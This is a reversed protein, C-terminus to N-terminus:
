SFFQCHNVVTLEILASFKWKKKNVVTLEILASFKKLLSM